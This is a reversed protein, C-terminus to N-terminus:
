IAGLAAKYRAQRASQASGPVTVGPKGALSKEVATIRVQPDPHTKAFDVGGPKLKSKMVTLMEDFAQPDYGAKRMIVLAMQDAELELERSYGSNVLTNTIDNISDKFVGTLQKLEPSGAVQVTANAGAQIAATWRANSIAKLGHKLVVHSIEHALIAAVTEESNACRLLGRSILILGGPAAFANIEDSDLVLFHYGGFTEPRDSYLSLSRGLVNVYDTARQESYAKRTALINAAVARGIYYEQEPTIEQSATQVAEVTQQVAARKDSDGAVNLATDLLSGGMSACGFVGFLILLALLSRTVPRM